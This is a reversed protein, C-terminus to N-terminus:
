ALCSAFLTEESLDARMDARWKQDHDHDVM